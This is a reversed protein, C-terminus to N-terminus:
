ICVIEVDDLCKIACVCKLDITFFECTAFYQGNNERDPELVRFTACCDNLKEIRFVSSTENPGSPFVWPTGNCNFLMVPRTNFCICRNPGLYPKSCDGKDCRTKEQLCIINRLIDAICRCSSTTYRYNM